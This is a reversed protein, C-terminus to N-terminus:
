IIIIIMIIITMDHGFVSEITMAGLTVRSSNHAIHTRICSISGGCRGTPYLPIYRSVSFTFHISSLSFAVLSSVTHRLDSYSFLRQGLLASECWRGLHTLMPMLHYLLTFSSHTLLITFHGNRSQFIQNGAKM